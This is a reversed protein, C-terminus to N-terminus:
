EEFITIEKLLEVAREMWARKKGEPEPTVYLTVLVGRTEQLLFIERTHYRM